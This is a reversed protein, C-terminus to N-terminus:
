GELGFVGQRHLSEVCQEQCGGTEQARCICQLLEPCCALHPLSAFALVNGEEVCNVVSVLLICPGVNRGPYHQVRAVRALHCGCHVAQRVRLDDPKLCLLTAAVDDKTGLKTLPELLNRDPVVLGPAAGDSRALKHVVCGYTHPLDGLLVCFPLEPEEMDVIGLRVPDIRRIKLMTDGVAVRPQPAEEPERVHRLLNLVMGLGLQHGESRVAHLGSPHLLDETMPAHLLRPCQLQKLERLERTNDEVPLLSEAIEIGGGQTM